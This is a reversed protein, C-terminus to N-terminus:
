KKIFQEKLWDFLNFRYESKECSETIYLSSTAIIKGDSIYKVKGIVEGTKVPSYMMQPAEVITTVEGHERPLTLSFCDSKATIDQKTGSILPIKVEVSDFTIKEYNSFGFDYLSAHDNWDNPANLTVCILRLDEKEALTVLCRGSKKTFGTKGAIVGNYDRLLRNHNILTRTSDEGKPITMKKTGSIALFTENKCAEAMIIALDYSSCYHSQEYLGHPNCFHTNKLGLSLARENMLEVFRETSGAVTHAIAIAADNASSLLLAYLLAELTIKEDYDLYISSGEIGVAEKPTVIVTHLPVDSELAVLATMIKTTSAIPLPTHENKGYLIKGSDADILCASNASYKHVSQVNQHVTQSNECFPSFKSIAFTFPLLLALLISIKRM